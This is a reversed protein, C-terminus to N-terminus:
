IRKVSELLKKIETKWKREELWKETMCSENLTHAKGEERACLVYGREQVM